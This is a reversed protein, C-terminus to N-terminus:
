GWSAQLRRGGYRGLADLVDDVDGDHVLVFLASARPALLERVEGAFRPGIHMGVTEEVVSRMAASGPTGPPELVLLGLLPLWFATGGSRGSDSMRTTARYLGDPDVTVVAVDEPPVELHASLRVLEEGAVAATTEDQYGITILTPV